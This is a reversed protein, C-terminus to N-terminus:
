VSEIVNLPVICYIYNWNDGKCDFFAESDVSFKCAQKGDSLKHKFMERYMNFAKLALEKTAYYEWMDETSYQDKSAFKQIGYITM